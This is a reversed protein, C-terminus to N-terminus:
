KIDTTKYIHVLDALETDTLAEVTKRGANWDRDVARMVDRPDGTGFDVFMASATQKARALTGRASGLKRREIEIVASLVDARTFGYGAQRGPTPVLGLPGGFIERPNKGGFVDLFAARLIELSAADPQQGTEVAMVLNVAARMQPTDVALPKFRSQNRRYMTM